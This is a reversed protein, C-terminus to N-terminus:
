EATQVEIRSVQFKGTGGYNNMATFRVYSALRSQFLIAQMGRQNRLAGEAAPEWNAGDLSAHVVYDKIRESEPAAYGGSTVAGTEPQLVHLGRIKYEGDLRLTISQPWGDGGTEGEGGGETKGAVSGNEGGVGESGGAGGEIAIRDRPIMRRASATKLKIVLDGDEAVAKWCPVQVTLLGGSQSYALSRGTKLEAAELVEYGADPVQLAGGDPPTLVHLYHTRGDATLTTAGYAGDNWHGPQYGGQGYGGGVTGYISEEAWSMFQEFHRTFDDLPAPFDGGIRPGYGLNANWSAGIVSILQKVYFANAPLAEDTPWEEKWDPRGRGVYFWNLKIRFAFEKQGPGVWTGSAYDYDPSCVKGFEELSMVDEDEVPSGSFDNNITVLQPAKAHIRAFVRQAEEKDHYGDFWFGALGPQTDILEEIVDLSYALFGEPTRIDANRSGGYSRYAERNLWEVGGHYGNHSSRNIYVIVRIGEKEAAEILERLYDRRTHPSGPVKSPWVKLYGLECHFTAITIYKARLRQATNVWRAASWGAASVAAEFAEVTEYPYRVDPGFPDAEHEGTLMGWHLFLGIRADDYWPALREERTPGSM